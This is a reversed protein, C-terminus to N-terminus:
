RMSAQRQTSVREPLADAPLTFWPSQLAEEASPRAGADFALMAECLQAAQPCKDLPSLTFDIKQVKLRDYIRKMAPSGVYNEGPKDDFLEKRSPFKKTLLKYLIVGVCYVDSAPSYEGLYAEPSIYGDTGLVDKAKPSNPEWSEVTDFDILKAQVPSGIEGGLPDGAMGVGSLRRGVKKARPSDMDVMVNELKLDKHIRGATHMANVAELIQYIVERVDVHKMPQDAVEEFLDRGEVREMVVYYSTETEIVEILECISETKPMNMQFEMTARWEMEESGKKFSMAKVRVKVVVQFNDKLRSAYLVSMGAHTSEMVMGGLKYRRSFDAESMGVIKKSKPGGALGAVGSDDKDQKTNVSLDKLNLTKNMRERMSKM